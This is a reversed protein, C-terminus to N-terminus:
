QQDKNPNICLRLYVIEGITAQNTANAEKILARAKQISVSEFESESLTKRSRSESAIQVEIAKALDAKANLEAIRRDSEAEWEAIKTLRM